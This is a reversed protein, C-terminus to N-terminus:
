QASPPPSDLNARNSKDQAEKHRALEEAHELNNRANPFNPRLQLAERYRSEAEDFRGQMALVNGLTDLAEPDNPRLNLSRQLVVTADEPRNLHGLAIGLNNLAEVFYPNIAIARDLAAKAAEVRSEKLLCIGLNNYAESYGPDFEVALQFEAIAADLAGIHDLARGLNYHAHADEPNIQLAKRFEVMATDFEQRNLLANGLNNHAGWSGPNIRLTKRFEVAATDFEQLNLLANGFNNHAGWSDPNKAINDEWISLDNDYLAARQFSLVGVTLLLAAVFISAFNRMGLSSRRALIAVGSGVLALPGMGALYQFHDAVHSHVQFSMKLFGLVPLLAVLFYSWAFLWPRSWSRRQKWLIFLVVLVGLTPLFSAWNSADIEWRPYISMLPHPWFIKRLYFWVADGASALRQLPSQSWHPDDDPTVQQTWLSLLGVALSLAFFPALKATHRWNLGISRWWIFLMLVLPLIVTSSKSTMALAGFLLSLFYARDFRDDAGRLFFLIALLYFFGSETNKMESIWAVSEVQVPHLAWLAAGFWAGPIKLRLLVRWLVVACGAQLLVNVLHYPLPALGWLKNEAWFTTLTLPCIDAQQSTWIEKPGQPGVICPNNTLVSEDDWFFGAHWVPAYVVIVAAVLALALLWERKM